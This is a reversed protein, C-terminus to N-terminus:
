KKEEIYSLIDDLIRGHELSDRKLINMLDKVRKVLEPNDELFEIASMIHTTLNPVSEEEVRKARNIFDILKEKDLSM